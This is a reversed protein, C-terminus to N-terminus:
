GKPKGGPIYPILGKEYAIEQIERPLSRADVLMGNVSIMWAMPNEAVQSPLTWDPDMVTIHLMDMIERAKNSLTSKARGIADALEGATLHPTQDPDFLFNVRGLAYLIGGAWTPVTGGLLPSPRKRSLKAALRRALAAYEDNLYEECVADTLAIIEEYRPRMKKPVRESKKTNM